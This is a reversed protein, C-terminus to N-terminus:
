AAAAACWLSDSSPMLGFSTTCRPPPADAAPICGYRRRVSWTAVTAVAANAASLYPTVCSRSPSSLPPLPTLTPFLNFLSARTPVQLKGWWGSWFLELPPSQDRTRQTRKENSQFAAIRQPSTTFRPGVAGRAFCGLVVVLRRRITQNRQAAAALIM